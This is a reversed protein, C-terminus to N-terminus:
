LKGDVTRMAVDFTQTTQEAEIEPAVLIIFFYMLKFYVTTEPRYQGAVLIFQGKYM